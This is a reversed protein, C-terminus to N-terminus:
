FAIGLRLLINSTRVGVETDWRSIFGRQWSLDLNYRDYWVGGGLRLGVDFRNCDDWDGMKYEEKDGDEEVKIKGTYDVSMYMGLHADVSFKDTFAYRYGFTLPSIHIFHRMESREEVYGYDVGVYNFGSSGLGGEVAWYIGHSGVPKQFGVTLDYGTKYSLAEGADAGSLVGTMFSPGIKFYKISAFEKKEKKYSESHSSVLQASATFASVAAIATLLFKKM